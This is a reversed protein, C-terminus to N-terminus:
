SADEPFYPHMEEDAATRQSDALMKIQLAATAAAVGYRPAPLTLYAHPLV